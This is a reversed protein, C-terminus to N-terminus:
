PASHQTAHLSSLLALAQASPSGPEAQYLVLQQGPASRVDFAQYTLALPGVDPHVLHKPEQTKGRVGHAQWLARFEGSSDLLQTVLANLRPDEPSVGASMRLNAVTRQATWEWRAYFRRAAPDLGQDQEPRGGGGVREGGEVALGGDDGDATAEGVGTQDDDAGRVVVAHALEDVVQDAQPVPLDDVDVAAPTDDGGIPAAAVARGHPAVAEVVADSDQVPVARFCGAFAGDAVGEVAGLKGGGDDRVVVPTGDTHQGSEGTGADGDRALDGHGTVVVVREGAQAAEVQRGDTLVGLFLGPVRHDGGDFTEVVTAVFGALDDEGWM